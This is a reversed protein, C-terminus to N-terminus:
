RHGQVWTETYDPPLVAFMKGPSSTLIGRDEERVFVQPASTASTVSATARHLNQYQSERQQQVPGSIGTSGSMYSLHSSVDSTQVTHRLSASSSNAPPNENQSWHSPHRWRPPSTPPTHPAPPSSTAPIPHSPYAAPQYPNFPEQTPVPSYYGAPRDERPGYSILQPPPLMSVPAHNQGPMGLAEDMRNSYNRKRYWWILFALLLALVFAGGAAAGAIVGVSMKQGSSGSKSPADIIEVRAFDWWPADGLGMNVVKVGYEKDRDLGSTWYMVKDLGIWRASANYTSTHPAGEGPPPTITVSFPGLDFNVLGYIFFASSQTLNFSMYAGAVNTHVRPYTVSSTAGIQGPVTMYWLGTYLFQPNLSLAGDSAQIFPSLTRNRPSERTASGVGVTLIVQSLSVLNAQIVTLALTHKGFALGEHKSLLGASTLRADPTPPVVTYGDLQVMYSGSVASGYLYAATGEFEILASAGVYTSRHSSAGSCLSHPVWTSDESGACTLNWGGELRGDRYPLYAITPSETSITVNYPASFQSSSM